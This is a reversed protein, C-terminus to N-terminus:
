VTGKLRDIVEFPDMPPDYLGRMRLGDYDVGRDLMLQEWELVHHTYYLHHAQCGCLANDDAWRISGYRRSRIHCCQFGGNCAAPGANIECVGRSRVHKSFLVDAKKKAATKNM